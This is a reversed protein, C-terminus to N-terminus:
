ESGRSRAGLEQRCGPRFHRVRESHGSREIGKKLYAIEEPSMAAGFVCYGKAALGLAIDGRLGSGARTFAATRQEQNIVNPM